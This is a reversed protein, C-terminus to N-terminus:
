HLLPRMGQVTSHVPEPGSGPVAPLGHTLPGSDAKASAEASRSLMAYRNMIRRQTKGAWVRVAEPGSLGAGATAM